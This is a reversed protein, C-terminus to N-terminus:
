IAPYYGLPKTPLSDAQWHLLHLCTHTRDRPQSSVRSSPLVVWELIRVQLIGYVSSGTAQHAVTCLTAFLRAHGFHSLVCTCVSLPIQHRHALCQELCQQHMLIHDGCCCYSITVIIVGTNNILFWPISLNLLRDLIECSFVSQAVNFGYNLDGSDAGEVRHERYPLCEWQLSLSGLISHGLAPICHPPSQLPLGM